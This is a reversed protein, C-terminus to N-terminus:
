LFPCWLPAMSSGRAGGGGGWRFFPFRRAWPESPGWLNHLAKMGATRPLGLFQKVADAAAGPSNFYQYLAKRKRGKLVQAVWQKRQAHWSVFKYCSTVMLESCRFVLVSCALPSSCDSCWFVALLHARAPSLQAIGTSCRLLTHAIITPLM